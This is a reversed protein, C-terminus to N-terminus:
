QKYRWIFGGATKQKGRCCASIHQYKTNTKFQAENISEYENLINKELDYQIVKKKTKGKSKETMQKMKERNSTTLGIKYAHKQNDSANCWELNGFVIIKSIGM